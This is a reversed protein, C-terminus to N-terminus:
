SIFDDILRLPSQQSICGGLAQPAVQLDAPQVSPPKGSPALGHVFHHGPEIEVVVFSQVRRQAIDTGHRKLLAPDRGLLLVPLGCLPPKLLVFFLILDPEINKSLPLKASIGEM